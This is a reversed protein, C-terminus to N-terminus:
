KTFGITLKLLREELIKQRYDSISISENTKTAEGPLEMAAKEKEISDDKTFRSCTITDGPHDKCYREMEKATDSVAGKITKLTGQLVQKQTRPISNNIKNLADELAAKRDAVQKKLVAMPDDANKLEELSKKLEEKKNELDKIKKNLDATNVYNNYLFRTSQDVDLAIDRSTKAVLEALEADSAVRSQFDKCFKNVLSGSEPDLYKYYQNKIEKEATGPGDTVYNYLYTPFGAIPNLVSIPGETGIFKFYDSLKVNCVPKYFRVYALMPWHIKSIFVYMLTQLVKPDIKGRLLYSFGQSLMRTFSILYKNGTLLSVIARDLKPSVFRSTAGAVIDRAVVTAGPLKPTGFRINEKSFEDFLKFYDNDTGNVAKRLEDKIKKKNSLAIDKSVGGEGAARSIEEATNKANLTNGRRASELANDLIQKQAENFAGEGDRISMRANNQNLIDYRKTLNNAFQKNNKAQQTLRKAYFDIVEDVILDKNTEYNVGGLNEETRNFFRKIPDGEEASNAITKLETYIDDINTKVYQSLEGNQRKLFGEYEGWIHLDRGEKVADDLVKFTDGAIDTQAKRLISKYEKLIKREQFYARRKDQVTKLTKQLDDRYKTIRKEIIKGARAGRGAKGAIQPGVKTLTGTVGRIAETLSKELLKLSEDVVKSGVIRAELSTSLPVLRTGSYFKTLANNIETPARSFLMGFGTSLFANFLDDSQVREWGGRSADKWVKNFYYSAIAMDALWFGPLPVAGLISFIILATQLRKNDLNQIARASKASLPSVGYIERAKTLVDKTDEGGLAALKLLDDRVKDGVILREKDLVGTRLLTEGGKTSGLNYIMWAANTQPLTYVQFDKFTKQTSDDEKQEKIKAKDLIQQYINPVRVSKSASVAKDLLAKPVQDKLPRGGVNTDYDISSSKVGGEINKNVQDRLRKLEKVKAPSLKFNEDGAFKLILDKYAKSTGVKLLINQLQENYSTLDPNDQYDPPRPSDKFTKVLGVVEYFFNPELVMKRLFPDKLRQFVSERENKSMDFNKGVRNGTKVWLDKRAAIIDKLTWEDRENGSATAFSLNAKEPSLGKPYCIGGSQFQHPLCKEYKGPNMQENIKNESIGKRGDEFQRVLYGAQNAERELIELNDSGEGYTKDLRGDCNQKHHMLEHAISRLIDKPHRNTVYVYVSNTSPNYMATKGLADSANDKDEVFYVSYPNDIELQENAFNLFEELLGKKLSKEALNKITYM